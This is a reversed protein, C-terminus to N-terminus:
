YQEKEVAACESLIYSIQEHLCAIVLVLPLHAETTCLYIYTHVTQM